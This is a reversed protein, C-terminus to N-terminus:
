TGHSEEQPLALVADIHALHLDLVGDDDIVVVGDPLREILDIAENKQNGM